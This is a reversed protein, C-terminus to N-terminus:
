YFLFTSCTVRAVLNLYSSCNLFYISAMFAKELYNQGGQGLVEINLTLNYLHFSPIDKLSWYQAHPCPTDNEHYLKM